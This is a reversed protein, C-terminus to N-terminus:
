NSSSGTCNYCGTSEHYLSITSHVHYLIFTRYHFTTDLIVLPLMMGGLAWITMARSKTTRRESSVTGPCLMFIIAFAAADLASWTMNSRSSAQATECFTSARWVTM